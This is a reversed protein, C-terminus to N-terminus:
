AWMARGGELGGWRKGMAERGHGKEEWGKQRGAEWGERRGAKIFYGVEDPGRHNLTRTMRILTDVDVPAVNRHFIGAIVCM